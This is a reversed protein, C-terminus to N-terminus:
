MIPSVNKGLDKKKFGKHSTNQNQQALQKEQNHKGTSLKEQM